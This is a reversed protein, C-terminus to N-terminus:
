TQQQNAVPEDFFSFLAVKESQNVEKRNEFSQIRM